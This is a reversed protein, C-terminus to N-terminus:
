SSESSALRPLEVFFAAGQDPESEVWARGGHTEAIKKVVALGIGTGRKQGPRRRATYFIEFVRERKEPPIGGGNDRVWLLHRGSREAVGVEVRPEPAEGMHEIANGILNAFIQYLQTRVCLVPPPSHPLRLEIGAADLRPKLEHALQRLIPLADTLEARGDARGIRSLELLDNTLGEMTRGAEEIRELFHRGTEGLVDGYDQSLLRSFGLLSVLPTRLDHSVAHVYHELEDNKDAVAQEFRREQTVDRLFVVTGAHAGDALHLPSTSADVIRVEGDDGELELERERELHREEAGQAVVSAIAGLASCRSFVLSVPKDLLDEAPQRLLAEFAVNAYTVYGRRDVALVAEPSSDLIARFYDAPPASEVRAPEDGEVPRVVALLGLRADSGVSVRVVSLEVPLCVGDGRLADVRENAFGGEHIVRERLAAHRSPFGFLEAAHSGILCGSRRAWADLAGSVWVIRGNEDILLVLEHLRALADLLPAAPLDAIQTEAVLPTNSM